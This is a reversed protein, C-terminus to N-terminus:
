LMRSPGAKPSPPNTLVATGSLSVDEDAVQRAGPGSGDSQGEHASQGDAETVYCVSHM